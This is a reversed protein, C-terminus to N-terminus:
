GSTSAAQGPGQRWLVTQEWVQLNFGLHTLRIALARWPTAGEMEQNRQETKVTGM